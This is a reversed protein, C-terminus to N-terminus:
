LGKNEPDHGLPREQTGASPLDKTEQLFVASPRRQGQVVAAPAVAVRAPVSAAPVQLEVVRPSGARSPLRRHYPM